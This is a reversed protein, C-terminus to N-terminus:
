ILCRLDYVKRSVGLYKNTSLINVGNLTLLGKKVEILRIDDDTLRSAIDEPVIAVRNIKELFLEISDEGIANKYSGKRFPTYERQILSRIVEELTYGEALTGKSFLEKLNSKPLVFGINNLTGYTEYSKKLLFLYKAPIVPSCMGLKAAYFFEEKKEDEIMRAIDPEAEYFAKFNDTAEINDKIFLGRSFIDLVEKLTNENARYPEKKLEALYEKGFIYDIIELPNM